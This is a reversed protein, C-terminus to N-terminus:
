NVVELQNDVETVGATRKAIDAIVERALGTRVPGSLTVRTGMTVVRVDKGTNALAGDAKIGKQIAATIETEATSNGQTAAMGMGMPGSGAASGSPAMAGGMGMSPGSGAASGNPAMTGAMPTSREPQARTDPKNCAVATLAAAVIIFPVKM